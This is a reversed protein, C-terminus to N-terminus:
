KDEDSTFLEDVKATSDTDDVSDTETDDPSEINSNGDTVNERKRSRKLIPMVDFGTLVSVSSVMSTLLAGGRLIWSIFGATLSATSGMVINAEVLESQDQSLDANMQRNMADM